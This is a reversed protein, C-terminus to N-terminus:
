QQAIMEQKMAHSHSFNMRHINRAVPSLYLVAGGEGLFSMKLAREGEDQLQLLTIPSQPM